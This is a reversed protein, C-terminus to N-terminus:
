IESFYEQTLFVYLESSAMQHEKHSFESLIVAQQERSSYSLHFLM